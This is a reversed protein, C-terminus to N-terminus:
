MELTIDTSFFEKATYPTNGVPEISCRPFADGHNVTYVAVDRQCRSFVGQSLRKDCATFLRFNRLFAKLPPNERRRLGCRGDAASGM